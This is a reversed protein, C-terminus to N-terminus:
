LALAPERNRELAATTIKTSRTNKSPLRRMAKLRQMDSIEVSRQDVKILGAENFASLTRSVTELTLGLYSGIEHRTMRLNFLKSSYGLKAFRESLTILFHAVRKEANLTALLGVLAQQRVLEESMIEHLMMELSPNAHIIKALAKFPLVVIECLTLAVSETSYRENAIGDIGVIDGKMPFRTIQENGFEDVVLNKVFGTRVLYLNEFPQGATHIRQGAKLQVHQFLYENAGALPTFPIRILDCVEQMSSWLSGIRPQAGIDITM